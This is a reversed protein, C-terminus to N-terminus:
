FDLQLQLSLRRGEAPVQELPQLERSAVTYIPRNLLNNIRLSARWGAVTQNANLTANLLLYGPIKATRGGTSDVRGLVGSIYHAELAANMNPWPLAHSIGGKLQLRPSSALEQGEQASQQLVVSAYLNDHDSQKLRVDGEVGVVQQITGSNRYQLCNNPVAGCTVGNLTPTAVQVPSNKLQNIFTSLRWKLGPRSEHELLAELSRSLEPQLQPNAWLTSAAPMGDQYLSEYITPARYAEGYILKGITKASFDQVYAIRPSLRSKVGESFGSYSDFRAGLFLKGPGLPMEDQAFASWQAYRPSADVTLVGSRVPGPQDGVQQYSAVQKIEIGSLLHHGNSFFRDYRFEAGIQRSALDSVNIFDIPPVRSGSFTYPYDGKESVNFLYARATVKAGDALERNIGAELASLDERLRLQANFVTGYSALPDSKDASILLGQVWFDENAVRGFLRLNQMSDRGSSVGGFRSSDFTANDFERMYIDRGKSDTVSVSMFSDLGGDNYQGLSGYMKSTRGSATELSVTKGSTERGSRTILNVVAQVAGSGYLASGAGKIFEIRDISEIDLYELFFGGYTPEYIPMGNVLYLIRSDFDGPVAVGRVGLAPWQSAANYVGPLASLAENINRYGFRKIEDRSLVTVNAPTEAITQTYRSAAFVKNEQQVLDLMGDSQARAVPGHASLTALLAACVLLRAPQSPQCSRCLKESRIRGM